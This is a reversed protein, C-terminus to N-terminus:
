RPNTACALVEGTRTDMVVCAMGEIDAGNGAGDTGNTELLTQHIQRMTEEAVMQLGLDISTEENHGAVPEKVYYQSVINGNKDM